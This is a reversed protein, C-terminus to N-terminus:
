FAIWLLLYLTNNDAANARASEVYASRAGPTAKRLASFSTQVTASIPMFPTLKLGRNNNGKSEISTIGTLTYANLKFLRGFANLKPFGIHCSNCSLATKRAFSPIAWVRGATLVIFTVAFLPISRAMRKM